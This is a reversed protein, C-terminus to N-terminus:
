ISLSLIRLKINGKGNSDFISEFSGLFRCFIFGNVTELAGYKNKLELDVLDAKQIQQEIIKTPM